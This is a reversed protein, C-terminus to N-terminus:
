QRYNQRVNANRDTPKLNELTCAFVEAGVMIKTLMLTNYTGICEITQEVYCYRM